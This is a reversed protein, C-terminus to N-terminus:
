WRNEAAITYLEDLMGSDLGRFRANKRQVNFWSKDPSDAGRDVTVGPALARGRLALIAGLRATAEVTDGPLYSLAARLGLSIVPPPFSPAQKAIGPLVKSLYQEQVPAYGADRDVAAGPTMSLYAAPRVLLVFRLLDAVEDPKLTLRQVRSLEVYLYKKREFVQPIYKDIIDSRTVALSGALASRAIPHRAAQRILGRLDDRARAPVTRGATLGPLFSLQVRATVLDALETELMRDTAGRIARSVLGAPERWGRSVDLGLSTFVPVLSAGSTRLVNMAQEEKQLSPLSRLAPTDLLRTAFRTVAETTTDVARM